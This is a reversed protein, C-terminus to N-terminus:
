TSISIPISLSVALSAVVLATQAISMRTISLHYSYLLLWLLQHLFLISSARDLSSFNKDAWLDIPDVRAERNPRYLLSRLRMFLLYVM